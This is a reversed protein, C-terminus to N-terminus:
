AEVIPRDGTTTARRLTTLNSLFVCVILFDHFLRRGRHGSLALAQGHDLVLRVMGRVLPRESCRPMATALPTVKNSFRADPMTGEHRPKAHGFADRLHGLSGIFRLCLLDSSEPPSADRESSFELPSSSISILRITNIWALLTVQAPTALLEIVGFTKLRRLTLNM